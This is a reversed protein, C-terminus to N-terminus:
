KENKKIENTIINIENDTLGPHLPITFTQEDLKEGVSCTPTNGLIDRYAKIKYVSTFMPSTEIRKKSLKMRLNDLDGKTLRLVYAYYSSKVFKQIKQGVLNKVNKLQEDYIKAIERRRKLMSPLLSLQENLLIAQPENMRYNYGIVNYDYEGLYKRGVNRFELAKEYIESDNTVIIGGDASTMVKDPYFSFVGTVGFSGAKKRHYTAGHAHAADEVIPINNQNSIDLLENMDCINGAIHVPIIAKTRKTILKKVQNPDIQFTDEQVDCFIPKANCYVAANATSIFTKSPIIVEDNQKIGLSLLAIHLGATASSVGCAFKSGNFKAFKKEFKTVNEGLTLRGNRLAKGINRQIKKISDEPFYPRRLRIVKLRKKSASLEIYLNNNM